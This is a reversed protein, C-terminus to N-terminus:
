PLTVGSVVTSPSSSSSTMIIRLQHPGVTCLIPHWKEDSCSWNSINLFSMPCYSTPDWSLWSWYVGSSVNLVLRHDTNVLVLSILIYTEVLATGIFVLLQYDFGVHSVLITPYWCSLELVTGQYVGPDLICRPRHQESRHRVYALVMSSPQFTPNLWLLTLLCWCRNVLDLM